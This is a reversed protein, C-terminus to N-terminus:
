IEKVTWVLKALVVMAASCIHHSRGVVIGKHKSANNERQPRHERDEKM